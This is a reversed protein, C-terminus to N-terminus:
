HGPMMKDSKMMDPHMKMIKKCGANKMMMDHSMAQCSQMKRTDAASMKMMKDSKMGGKMMADQALAPTAAAISMASIAILTLIRM